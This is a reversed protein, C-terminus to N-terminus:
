VAVDDSFGSASDDVVSYIGDRLTVTKGSVSSIRDGPLLIGTLNLPDAASITLMEGPASDARMARLSEVAIPLAFQEGMFGSVFHGGRVQGRDELRRFAILLERWRPAITERATLERFVVGYRRLLM